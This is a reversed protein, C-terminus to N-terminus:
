TLAGAAAAAVVDTDLESSSFKLPVLLLSLRRVL